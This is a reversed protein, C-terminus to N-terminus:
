SFEVPSSSLWITKIRVALGTLASVVLLAIFLIRLRVASLMDPSVVADGCVFVRSYQFRLATHASDAVTRWSGPFMLHVYVVVM